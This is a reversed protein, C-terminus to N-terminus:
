AMQPEGGAPFAEQRSVAAQMIEQPLSAAQVQRQARAIASGLVLRKRRKALQASAWQALSQWSFM